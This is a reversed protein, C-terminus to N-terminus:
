VPPRRSSDWLAGLHRQNWFGSTDTFRGPRISRLTIGNIGGWSLGFDYIQPNDNVLSVLINAAAEDIAFEQVYMGISLNYRSKYDEITSGTWGQVNNYAREGAKSPLAFRQIRYSQKTAEADFPGFVRQCTAKLSAQQPDSAPTCILSGANFFVTDGYRIQKSYCAQQLDGASHFILVERVPQVTHLSLTRIEDQVFAGVGEVRVGSERLIDVVCAWVQPPVHRSKVDLFLGFPDERKVIHRIIAVSAAMSTNPCSFTTMDTLSTTRQTRSELSTSSTATTPSNSPSEDLVGVRLSEAYVAMWQRAYIGGGLTRRTRKVRSYNYYKFYGTQELSLQALNGHAILMEDVLNLVRKRLEREYFKVVNRQSPTLQNEFEPFKEMPKVTPLEPLVTLLFTRRERLVVEVRYVLYPDLFVDWEMNPLTGNYELEHSTNFAAVVPNNEAWHILCHPPAEIRRSIEVYVDPMLHRLISIWHPNALMFPASGFGGGHSYPVRNIRGNSFCIQDSQVSQMVPVPDTQFSLRRRHKIPSDFETPLDNRVQSVSLGRKKRKEHHKQFKFDAKALKKEVKKQMGNMRVRSLWSLKDVEEIEKRREHEQQHYRQSGYPARLWVQRRRRVMRFSSWAAVTSLLWRLWPMSIFCLSFGYTLSFAGVTFILHGLVDSTLHSWGFVSHELALKIELPVLQDYAIEDWEDEVKDVVKLINDEVTYSQSLDDDGGKEHLPTPGKNPLGLQQPLNYPFSPSAEQQQLTNEVRVHSKRLKLSEDTEQELLPTESAGSSYSGDSLPSSASSRPM